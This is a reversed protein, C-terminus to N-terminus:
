DRQPALKQDVVVMKVRDVTVEQEDRRGSGQAWAHPPAAAARALHRGPVTRSGAAAAQLAAAAQQRRAPRRSARSCRGCLVAGCRRPRCGSPPGRCSSPGSRCAAALLLPEALRGHPGPTGRKTCAHCPLRASTPPGRRVNDCFRYIDLHGKLSGKATVKNEM